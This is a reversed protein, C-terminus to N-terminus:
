GTVRNFRGCAGTSRGVRQLYLGCSAWVRGGHPSDQGFGRWLVAARQGSAVSLAVSLAECSARVLRGPRGTPGVGDPDLLGCRAVGGPVDLEWVGAEEAVTAGASAGLM